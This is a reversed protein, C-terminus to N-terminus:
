IAIAQNWVVVTCDSWLGTVECHSLGVSAQVSWHGSCIGPKYQSDLWDVLDHADQDSLLNEDGSLLAPLLHDAITYESQPFTSM